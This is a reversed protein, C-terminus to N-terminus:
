CGARPLAHCPVWSAKAQPVQVAARDTQLCLLCPWQRWHGTSAPSLPWALGPQLFVPTLMLASGADPLPPSLGPCRQGAKGLEKRKEWLPAREPGKAVWRDGEGQWRPGLVGQPGEAAAGPETQHSHSSHDRCGGGGEPPHVHRPPPLALPPLLDSPCAHPGCPFFLFVKVM